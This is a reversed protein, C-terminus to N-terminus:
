WELRQVLGKAMAITFLALALLAYGYIPNVNGSHLPTSFDNPISPFQYSLIKSLIPAADLIPDLAGTYQGSSPLVIALIITAAVGIGIWIKARNSLLPRYVAQSTTQAEIKQLVGETFTAPLEERGLEDMWNKLNDKGIMDM